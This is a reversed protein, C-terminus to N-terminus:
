LMAAGRRSPPSRRRRALRGSGRERYCKKSSGPAHRVTNWTEAASGNSIWPIPHRTPIHIRLWIGREGTSAAVPARDTPPREPERRREPAPVLHSSVLGRGLGHDLGEIPM